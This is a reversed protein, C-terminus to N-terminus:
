KPSKPSKASAGLPRGYKEALFNTIEEIKSGIGAMISSPDDINFGANQDDSPTEPFPSLGLLMTAAQIQGIVNNLSDQLSEAVYRGPTLKAGTAGIDNFEKGALVDKGTQLVRGLEHGQGAAFAPLFGAQQSAERSGRVHREVDQAAEVAPLKPGRPAGPGYRRAHIQNAVGMFADRAAGLRPFQEGLAADDGAQISDWAQAMQGPQANPDPPDPTMAAKASAIQQDMDPYKRHLNQNMRDGLATIEAPPNYESSAAPVGRLEDAVPTKKLDAQGAGASEGKLLTTYRNGKWTFETAGAMRAGAFARGFSIPKEEAM